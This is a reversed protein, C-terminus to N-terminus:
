TTGFGEGGNALSVRHGNLLTKGDTGGGLVWLLWWDTNRTERTDTYKGYSFDYLTYTGKTNLKKRQPYRKPEDRNDRKLASYQQTTGISWM